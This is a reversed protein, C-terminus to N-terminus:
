MLDVSIAKTKGTKKDIGAEYVVKAGQAIEDGERLATVHFFVDQGGGEPRIFGFGREENWMKIEGKPM